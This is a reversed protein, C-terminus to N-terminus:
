GHFYNFVYLIQEILINTMLDYNYGLIFQLVNMATSFNSRTEECFYRSNTDRFGLALLKVSFYFGAGTLLCTVYLNLDLVKTPKRLPQFEM